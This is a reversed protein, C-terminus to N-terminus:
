GLIERYLAAHKDVMTEITFETGIRQRAATGLSSALHSDDLIKNAYRAFGARDGVGVLYGTQGHVVLERNGWIDSAVVPVGCAMAEMVVNPLGEYSSALWLVDFHPMLRPVDHRTGLFHVKDDIHCLRRYRELAQRQPGDGIVLLHVDDRIVKILDAAWILDKIRKQPWLRGVAAILRTGAPLNLEALLQERTVDSAAAPGIGNYILRLKDAPVGHNAYFEAVGRSNVTIADTRRALYRDIALQHWAKWSDVCRESAVIHRVGAAIAAARGYANATFMWTQVVDPKLRAIHQRLRWLAAPDFKWDKELVTLPIGAQRLDDALPGGRMLACVHVDFEDSPLGAALLALQKEAGSRDLTPIIHLIRRTM